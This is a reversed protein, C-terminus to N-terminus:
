ATELEMESAHTVRNRGREKSAYLAKDAASTLDEGRSMTSDVSAVGFSSTVTREKWQAGEIRVRLREALIMAGEVTTNPLILAFEEGGYRAFFDTTRIAGMITAAVRQLVADGAQHGFDDNFSKFKDVDLLVLSLPTGYRTARSWEEALRENFARRNKAGTLGDHTALSELKENALLLAEQQKELTALTNEREIEGGVWEAMLQLLEFEGASFGNPRRELAAFSLMGFLKGEVIVPSGIYAVEDNAMVYPHQAWNVANPVRSVGLLKSEIANSKVRPIAMAPRIRKDPSNVFLTKLCDGHEEDRSFQALVGIPLGLRGCGMALLSKMKDDLNKSKDGSMVSYLARIADRAGSLEQEARVRRTIDELVILVRRPKRWDDAKKLTIQANQMAGDPRFVRAADSFREIDGDYILHLQVRFPALDDPHFFNPFPQGVADEIGLFRKFADNCHTIYEKNDVYALATPSEAFIDLEPEKEEVVPAKKLSYGLAGGLLLGGLAGGLLLLTPSVGRSAGRSANQAQAQSVFPLNPEAELWLAGGLFMLLVGARVRNKRSVPAFARRCPVPLFRESYHPM